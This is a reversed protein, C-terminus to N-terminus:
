TNAKVLAAIEMRFSLKESNIEVPEMSINLVRIHPFKNELDSVFKGVDHFYGTGSITFKIQKYPFGALIDVDSQVPQGINPLEIKYNSKFRRITDYTWAFVDGTAIDTETQNLQAMVEDAKKASADAQQVTKKIAELKSATAAADALLKSKEQNQPSILFFYIMGLAAVIAVIVFILQNRKAQPLKKM